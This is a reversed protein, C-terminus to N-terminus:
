EIELKYTTFMKKAEKFVRSYVDKPGSLVVGKAGHMKAWEKFLPMLENWLETSGGCTCNVYVAPEGEWDEITCIVAVKPGTEDVFFLLNRTGNFCDKWLQHPTTQYGTRSIAKELYPAVYEGWVQNVLMPNIVDIHM